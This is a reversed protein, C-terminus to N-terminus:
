ESSKCKYVLVSECFLSDNVLARISVSLSCVPKIGGGPVGQNFLKGRGGM